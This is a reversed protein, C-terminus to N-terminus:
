TYSTKFISYLHGCVFALGEPRLFTGIVIFIIPLIFGTGLLFIGKLISEGRLFVVKRVDADWNQNFKLQNYRLYLCGIALVFLSILLSKKQGEAERFLQHVVFLLFPFLLYIWEELALTWSEYYFPIPAEFLNQCFFFFPIYYSLTLPESSFSYAIFLKLLLILYYNPLTRYWRRKWFVLLELHEYSLPNAMQKTLISGILFGSLVFFLEVGMFGGLRLLKSDFSLIPQLLHRGHEILVLVIALCRM